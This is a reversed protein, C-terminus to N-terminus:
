RENSKGQNCHKSYGTRKDTRACEPVRLGTIRKRAFGAQRRDEPIDWSAEWYTVDYTRGTHPDRRTRTKTYPCGSNLPHRSPAAKHTAM